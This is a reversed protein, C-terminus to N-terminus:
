KLGWVILDYTDTGSDVKSWTLKTYNGYSLTIWARRGTESRTYNFMIKRRSVTSQNDNIISILWETPFWQSMRHSVNDSGTAICLFGIM